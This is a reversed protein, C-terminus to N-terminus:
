TQAGTVHVKPVYTIWHGGSETFSREKAMIEEAHNWAFLLAYDPYPVFAEPSRIPIMTGPALRGQKAPTSDCIFPLLEPGIGCYNLVTASKATAAYGVVTAGQERLKRLLGVLESRISEVREGFRIYTAPDHLGLDHERALLRTVSPSVDRTGERAITYRMSGGHVDLHEVNVLEFGFRSALAQVSRVSFLYFHEDYIQDFSTNDVIDALYRDECVFIGDRKLLVDLGRLVEGLGSIHSVTNASYVIDAEGHEKRVSTATEEHFFDVLGRVEPLGEDQVADGSPDVGLHRVGAQAVTRLLSGDNSGIEVIFPDSGHPLGRLLREATARFHARMHQSTSTRFPYAKGFMLSPPTEELQQVMTCSTCVGVALRFRHGSDDSPSRPYDSSVPQPGLDLCAVVEDSCIRCSLDPHPSTTDM